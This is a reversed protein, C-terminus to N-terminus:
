KQGIKDSIYRMVDGVFVDNKEEEEKMYPCKDRMHYISKCKWCPLPEGDKGLPNKKGKYNNSNRSSLDEDGASGPDTNSRRRGAPKKWGSAVFAEAVSAVLAPDFRLASKDEGVVNRGQFKKLSAKVQDYLNKQQKAEEYDVGTLVFKEDTENLVTAELLRFAILTDSYVCGATKALIYEKEFEAIFNNIPANDVRRIKQFNKYKSWADAMEDRKYITDLFVMLHQVGDDANKIKDGINLIIKEKIGSPHGELNYVIVEAQIKKQVPTIRSWMLVDEKYQEYTKTDSVFAPPEFNKSAMNRQQSIEAEALATPAAEAVVNSEFTEAEAPKLNPKTDTPERKVTLAAAKLDEESSNM